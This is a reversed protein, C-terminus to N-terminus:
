GATPVRRQPRPWSKAGRNAWIIMTYLLFMGLAMVPSNYVAISGFHSWLAFSYFGVLLVLHIVSGTCVRRYAIGAALGILFLAVSGGPLGFDQILGRFATYINSTSGSEDSVVDVLEPYLGPVRDRLGTLEFLGAFTFAGLSLQSESLLSSEFWQSFASLHGAIDAQVRAWLFMKATDWPEGYRLMLLLISLSGLTSGVLLVFCVFRLNLLRHPRRKRLLSVAIYSSTWLVGELLLTARTTLLIAFLFGPLFPTFALWFYAGTRKQAFLAGGFLCAAYMPVLLLRVVFPEVSGQLYRAVSFHRSVLVLNEFSSFGTVSYGEGWLLALVGLIGLSSGLITLLALAPMQCRVHQLSRDRSTPRTLSFRASSRTRIRGLGVVSGMYVFSVGAFIGWIGGPRVDANHVMFLPVLLYFTWLLGFFAGPAFWSGQEARAFLALGLVFSAVILSLIWNDM